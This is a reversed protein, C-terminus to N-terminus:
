GVDEGAGDSALLLPRAINVPLRECTTGVLESVFELARNTYELRDIAVLIRRVAPLGHVFENENGVLTVCGTVLPPRNSIRGM